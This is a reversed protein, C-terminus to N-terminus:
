AQIFNYMEIKFRTSLPKRDRIQKIQQKMLRSECIENHSM